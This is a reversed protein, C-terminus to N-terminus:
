LIVGYVLSILCSILGILWFLRVIDNEKMGKKEFTHHIPTMPFFRKKTLKFYMIQIICSLTEVVFVLGILILLLEHRTMIAYAGLTAGLALSGTDGMFIKAPNINFILFGLLSGSIIFALVAIDEFGFLWGSNWSIIGFTIFCIFSLGTALGDLGDTINVANSSAVLVFLIFLGYLFGINLKFHLSHVWLLPENGSKMFLYFFILAIVFQMILKQWITLGINNKRKIILFDDIFGILFYSVLTFLVIALTYSIHIKNVFLLIGISVITPLIFIIGGMTPTGKKNKHARDLYISITQKAKIKELFPIFIIGCVVSFSFGILMAMVSKTIM